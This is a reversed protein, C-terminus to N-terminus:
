WDVIAHTAGKLPVKFDLVVERAATPTPDFSRHVRLYYTGAEFRRLDVISTDRVLVGGEADLLDAVVGPLPLADVRIQLPGITVGAALTSTARLV